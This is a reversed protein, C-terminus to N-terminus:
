KFTSSFKECQGCKINHQIGSSFIAMWKGGEGREWAGEERRGGQGRALGKKIQGM